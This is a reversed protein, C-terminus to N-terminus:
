MQLHWGRHVFSDNNGDRVTRMVRIKKAPRGVTGNAARRHFANARKPRNKNSSAKPRGTSAVPSASDLSSSAGCRTPASSGSTRRFAWPGRLLSSSLRM